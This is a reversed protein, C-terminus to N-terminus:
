LGVDLGVLGFPMFAKLNRPGDHTVDLMKREPEPEILVQYEDGM